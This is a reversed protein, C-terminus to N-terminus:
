TPNVIDLKYQKLLDICSLYADKHFEYLSDFNNVGFYRNVVWGKQKYDTGIKGFIVTFVVRDDDRSIETEFGFNLKHILNVFEMYAGTLTGKEM